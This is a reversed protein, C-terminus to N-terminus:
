HSNVSALLRCTEMWSPAHARAATLASAHAYDLATLPDSGGLTLLLGARAPPNLDEIFLRMPKPPKVLNFAQILSPITPKDV